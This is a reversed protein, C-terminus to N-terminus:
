FLKKTMFKPLLDVWRLETLIKANRSIHTTAKSIELNLNLLLDILEEQSKARHKGALKTSVAFNAKMAEAFIPELKPFYFSCLLAINETHEGGQLEKLKDYDVEEDLSRMRAGQLDALRNLSRYLVELKERLLNSEERRHLVWQTAAFVVFGVASTILAALVQPQELIEVFWHYNM